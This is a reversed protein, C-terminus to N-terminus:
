HPHFEGNTLSLLHALIPELVALTDRVGGPSGPASIIITQHRAGVIARSLPAHPASARGKEHIAAEVGEFRRDLLGLIASPTLDDPTPGTGGTFFLLSVPNFDCHEIVQQAIRLRDDPIIGSGAVTLNMESLLETALKGSRDETKGNACGTSVTVVWATFPKAPQTM